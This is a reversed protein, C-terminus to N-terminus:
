LRYYSVRVLHYLSEWYDQTMLRFSSLMAEGYSDFSTYGYNPNDGINPLCTSNLPCNRPSFFLSNNLCCIFVFFKIFEPIMKSQVAVIEVCFM